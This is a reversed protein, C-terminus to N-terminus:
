KVFKQILIEILIFLLTAMIFWKWIVTDTRLSHLENLAEEISNIKAFNSYITSNDENLNSETRPYNFSINQLNKTQQNIAYNGAKEPYDGFSLKVKTSLIQQLPIFSYNSNAVAIVDDKNLTADIYMTENEGITYFINQAVTQSKVMNYITPVILPSNQFNSNQKSIAASFIYFNGIKNSVSSLFPTQDEYKLATFSNGTLSFSQNVKPYQFNSVRKEFVQKFIPHDFNINTIQKDNTENKSFVLNGFKQTFSNLNTTTSETSPILIVSGGKDYFAKLTTTLSQPIEKIENLIVAHQGEIKNYDLEKLSTTTLQFEDAVLIRKLFDSKDTDGIVLANLKEPQSISFYFNNDYELSNDQISVKGNFAKKPISLTITKESKDFTVQTKATVKDDEFLTLSIENEITGFAKLDISIEYFSDLTNTLRVREISVNNKNQAKPQLFYVKNAVTLQEANKANAAIADTIILYDFTANKKKASVQLLRNDLDFPIPSYQLNQLEKQISKSDVDWFVEDNTLLSFQQTPTFQELIDQVSRKLLEGKDGKAQMSFSNDLIVVLERDKNQADVANFYPQAFSLILCSLLLLRTALLLWKKLSKSKRTQQQLERLLKVNTFHQKKFRRLQFLHVLIPIVLLFLLYLIEPYKFQM